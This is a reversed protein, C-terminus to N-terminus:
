PMPSPRVMVPPYCNNTRGANLARSQTNVPNDRMSGAVSALEGDTQLRVAASNGYLGHIGLSGGDGWPRGQFSQNVVALLSERGLNGEVFTLVDLVDGSPPNVGGFAVRLRNITGETFFDYDGNAVSALNPLAGDVRVMRLNAFQSSTVETSLTGIAWSGNTQHYGFCNRVDGSGESANVRGGNVTTNPAAGQAETSGDDPPVFAPSQGNGRIADCRQNLWYTEYSAQTGSTGVRRCVFVADDAPADPDNAGAINDPAPRGGAVAAQVLNQGSGVIFQTWNTLRGAYIGRIQSRTLSPTNAPLDDQPLGQAAQLARYLNLNVPVGFVVHASRTFPSIRALEATTLVDFALHPETDSIGGNPNQLVTSVPCTWNWYALLGNAAAVPAAGRTCQTAASAMNYFPLQLSRAIPVVGNSSGGISEKHFALDTGATLGTIGARVDCFIVRQQQNSTTVRFIDISPDAPNGNDQCVGGTGAILLNELVNDTATAGSFYVNLTTAPNNTWQGPPLALASSSLGAFAIATAGLIARKSSIRSM